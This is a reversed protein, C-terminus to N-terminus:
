GYSVLGERSNGRARGVCLTALSRTSFHVLTLAKYSIPGELSNGSGKARVCTHGVERSMSFTVWILEKYSIHICSHVSHILFIFSHIRARWPSEGLKQACVCTHSSDRCMSFNVRTLDKFSIHIYLHIFSHVCSHIPFHIFSYPARYLSKGWLRQVCM